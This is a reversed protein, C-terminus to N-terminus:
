CYTHVQQGPLLPSKEPKAHRDFFYKDHSKRDGLVRRVKDVDYAAVQYRTSQVPHDDRLVRGQLLESSSPLGEAVPTNRITALGQLWDGSKQLCKKMMSKVTGITRETQGNGAPHLPSSTCHTIGQNSCFLKFDFSSFQLGNDSVLVEPRGFDVFIERLCHIVRKSSTDSGLSRVVPWKSLYDVVLLYYSGELQFLDVGVMQYPFDPILISLLPEKTQIKEETVCPECALCKEEVRNRLRPWYVSEGARQM